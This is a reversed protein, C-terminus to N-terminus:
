KVEKVLIRIHLRQINYGGATIAWIHATKGNTGRVYLDSVERGAVEELENGCIKRVKDEIYKRKLEKQKACYKKIWEEDRGDILEIDSPNHGMSAVYSELANRKKPEISYHGMEYIPTDKFEEGDITVIADIYRNVCETYVYRGDVVKHYGGKEERYEYRAPLDWWGYGRFKDKDPFVEFVKENGNRTQQFIIPRAYAVAEKLGLLDAVMEKEYDDLWKELKEFM